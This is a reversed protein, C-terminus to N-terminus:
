VWGVNVQESDVIFVGSRNNQHKRQLSQGLLHRNPLLGLYEELSTSCDGGIAEAADKKNTAKNTMNIETNLITGVTGLTLGLYKNKKIVVGDHKEVAITVFHM